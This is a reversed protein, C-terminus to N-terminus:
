DNLYGGPNSVEEFPGPSESWHTVSFWDDEAFFSDLLREMTNLDVFSTWFFGEYSPIRIPTDAYWKDYEMRSLFLNEGTKNNIFSIGNKRFTWDLNKTKSKADELEIHKHQGISVFQGTNAMSYEIDQYSTTNALTQEQIQPNQLLNELLSRAIKTQLPNM